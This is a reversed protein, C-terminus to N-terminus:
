ELPSSKTGATSAPLSGIVGEAGLDTLCPLHANRSPVSRGGARRWFWEFEPVDSGTPSRGTGGGDNTLEPSCSM